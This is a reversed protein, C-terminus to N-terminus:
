EYHTPRRNLDSKPELAIQSNWIFRPLAPILRRSASFCPQPRPIDTGTESREVPVYRYFRVPVDASVDVTTESVDEWDSLNDSQQVKVKLTASGESVNLLASGTRLDRVEGLTPRRSLEFQELASEAKATSGYRSDAIALRSQGSM